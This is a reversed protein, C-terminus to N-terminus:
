ARGAAVEANGRALARGLAWLGILGLVAINTFLLPAFVPSGFVFKDAFREMPSLLNGRLHFAFGALGVIAQVVMAIAALNRVTPSRYEVVAGVLLGVAVAAAVVGVWELPNFFGNQAHDALSLVFNGVFGGAALLVVWRAWDVSRPDVMRDLLLLLGVGAYALPAVFPATYVLSRITQLAFFDSDLHYILGVVGVVVAGAGALTGLWWSPGRAGPSGATRPVIGALAWGALLMLSALASFAVPIWEGPHAFDNMKHAILIDVALFAVNGLLFVELWLVPEGWARGPSEAQPTAAPTGGIALGSV